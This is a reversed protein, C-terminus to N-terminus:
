KIKGLIGVRRANRELKDWLGEREIEVTPKRIADAQARKQGVFNALREREVPDINRIEDTLKNYKSIPMPEIPNKGLLSTGGIDDPERVIWRSQDPIIGRQIALEYPNKIKMREALSMNRMMEQVNADVEGLLSKYYAHSLLKPDLQYTQIDNLAQIFHKRSPNDISNLLELIDESTPADYFPTNPDKLFPRIVDKSIGYDNAMMQFRAKAKKVLHEPNFEGPTGGPAMRNYGQPIHAGAEHVLVRQLEEANPGYAEVLPRGSPYWSTSGIGSTYKEPNIEAQVIADQYIRPEDRYTHPADWVDRLPRTTGPWKLIQKTNVVDENNPVHYINGGVADPRQVGPHIDKFLEKAEKARAFGRGKPGGITGLFGAGQMPMNQIATHIFDSLDQKARISKESEGFTSEVQPPEMTENFKDFLWKAPTGELNKGIQQQAGLFPAAALLANDYWEPM